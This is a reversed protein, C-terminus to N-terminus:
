NHKRSEHYRTTTKSTRPHNNKSFTTVSKQQLDSFQRFSKKDEPLGSPDVFFTINIVSKSTSQYLSYSNMCIIILVIRSTKKRFIKKSNSSITNLSIDVIQDLDLNWETRYLM